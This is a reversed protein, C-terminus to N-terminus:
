ISHLPLQKKLIKYKYQTNKNDDTSYPSAKILFESSYSQKIKTNRQVVTILRKM